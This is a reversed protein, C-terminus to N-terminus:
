ATGDRPITFVTGCPVAHNPLDTGSQAYSIFGSGPVHRRVQEVRTNAEDVADQLERVRRALAAVVRASSVPYGDRLVDVLGSAEGDDGKGPDAPPPPLTSPLPATKSPVYPSRSVHTVSDAM